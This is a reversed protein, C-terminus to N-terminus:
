LIDSSTTKSHKDLKFVFENCGSGTKLRKKILHFQRQEFFSIIEQPTATEFPYGGIWDVVDHWLSMGRENGYEYWLSPHQKHIIGNITKILLVILYYGFAMTM